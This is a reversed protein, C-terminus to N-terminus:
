AWPSGKAGKHGIQQGSKTAQKHRVKGIGGMAYGGAAYPTGKSRGIHPHDSAMHGGHEGMMDAEYDRYHNPAGRHEGMMDAEYRAYHNTVAGGGAYCDKHHKKHAHGGKRMASMSGGDAMKGGDAKRHVKGGRKMASASNLANTAMSNLANNAMNSQYANSMMGGDAKHRARGGKKMPQPMGFPGTGTPRPFRPGCAAAPMRDSQNDQAAKMMMEQM